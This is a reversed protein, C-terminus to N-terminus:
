ITEPSLINVGDFTQLDFFCGVCVCVNIPYLTHIYGYVVIAAMTTPMMMMMVTHIFTFLVFPNFIYLYIMTMNIM